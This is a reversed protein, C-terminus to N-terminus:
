RADRIARADFADAKQAGASDCPPSGAGLDRASRSKGTSVFEPPPKCRRNRDRPVRDAARWIRISSNVRANEALLGCETGHGSVGPGSSPGFSLQDKDLGHTPPHPSWPAGPLRSPQRLDCDARTIRASSDSPRQWRERRANGVISALIGLGARAPEPPAKRLSM